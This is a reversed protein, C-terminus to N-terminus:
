IKLPDFPNQLKGQTQVSAAANLSIKLPRPVSHGRISFHSPCIPALFSPFSHCSLCGPGHTTRLSGTLPAAMSVAVRRASVYNLFNNKRKRELEKGNERESEMKESERRKREMKGKGRWKRERKVNGGEREMKKDESWKRKM